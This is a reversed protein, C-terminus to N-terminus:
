AIRIVVPTSRGAVVTVTASKVAGNANAELRYEGPRLGGLRFSGDAGTLAAIDPHPQASAVIAVTVGPLPAGTPGLVRGAISGLSAMM